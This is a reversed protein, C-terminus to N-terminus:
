LRVIEMEEAPMKWGTDSRFLQDTEEGLIDLMSFLASADSEGAERTGNIHVLQSWGQVIRPPSFPFTGGGSRGGTM